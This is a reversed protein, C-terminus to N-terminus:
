GGIGPGRGHPPPAHDVLGLFAERPVASMLLLFISGSVSGVLLGALWRSELTSILLWGGAGIVLIWAIAVLPYGIRYALSVRGASMSLGSVTM